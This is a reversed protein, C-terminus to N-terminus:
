ILVESITEALEKNSMIENKVTGGSAKKDFSKYVM